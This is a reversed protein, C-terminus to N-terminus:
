SSKKAVKKKAKKKTVKKKTAKKKVAGGKPAPTCRGERIAKKRAWMGEKTIPLDASSKEVVPKKVTASNYKEEEANPIPKPM